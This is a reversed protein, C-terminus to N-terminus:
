ACLTLWALPWYPLAFWMNFVYCILCTLSSPFFWHSGPSTPYLSTFYWLSFCYPCLSSHTTNTTILLNSGKQLVLCVLLQVLVGNLRQLALGNKSELFRWKTLFKTYLQLSLTQPRRPKIPKLLDVPFPEKSAWQPCWQLEQWRDLCRATRRPCEKPLERCWILFEASM